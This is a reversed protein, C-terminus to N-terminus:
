GHFTVIIIFCSIFFYPVFPIYNTNQMQLGFPKYRAMLRLICHSILCFLSATFLAAFGSKYGLVTCILAFVTIDGGGLTIASQSSIVEAGKSEKPYIFNGVFYFVVECFLYILGIGCIFVSLSSFDHKLFILKYLQASLLLFLLIYSFIKIKELQKVNVTVFYLLVPIIILLINQNFFFIVSWLILPISILPIELTFKKILSSFIYLFDMFIFALGLSVLTLLINEKFFVFKLLVVLIIATYTVAHPIERYKLDLMSLLLLLMIFSTLITNEFLSVGKSYLSIFLILASFSTFLEVTFCASDIKAKCFFCKGRLLIFSVLPINQWWLLNKGCHLCYSPKLIISKADKYRDVVLKFFSGFCSGIVFVVFGLLFVDFSFIFNM